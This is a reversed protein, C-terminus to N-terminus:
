LHVVLFVFEVGTSVKQFGRRSYQSWFPIANREVGIDRPAASLNVLAPLVKQFIPEPSIKSKTIISQRLFEPFGTIMDEPILVKSSTFFPILKRLAFFLRTAKICQKDFYGPAGSSALRETESNYLSVKGPVGIPNESFERPISGEHM